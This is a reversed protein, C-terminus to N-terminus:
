GIISPINQYLERTFDVMLRLMWPGAIVMVAAIAALKPIFSLTMENIQTVAQFLSVLLGVTMGSPLLPLAIRMIHTMLGKMLEVVYDPSM